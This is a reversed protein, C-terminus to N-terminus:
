GRSYGRRLASADDSYIEGDGYLTWGDDQFPCRKGNGFGKWGDDEWSVM